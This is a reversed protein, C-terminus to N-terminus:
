SVAPADPIFVHAAELCIIEEAPSLTQPVHLGKVLCCFLLRICVVDSDDSLTLVSSLVVLLSSFARCYSSGSGEAILYLNRVGESHQILFYMNLRRELLMKVVRAANEFLQSNSGLNRSNYLCYM